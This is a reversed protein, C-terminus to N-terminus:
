ITEGNLSINLKAMEASVVAYTAGNDLLHNITARHDKPLEAIKGMRKRRPLDPTWLGSDLTPGTQPIDLTEAPLARPYDETASQDDTALLAISSPPNCPAPASQISPNISQHIPEPTPESTLIQSDTTM